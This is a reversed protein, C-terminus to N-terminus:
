PDADEPTRAGLTDPPTCQLQTAVDPATPTAPAPALVTTQATHQLSCLGVAQMGALLAAAEAETRRVDLVLRDDDEAAIYWVRGDPMDPADPAPPPVLHARCVAHSGPTQPEAFLGQLGEASAVSYVVQVDSQM